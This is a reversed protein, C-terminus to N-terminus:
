EGVGREKTTNDFLEVDPPPTFMFADREFTPNIEIDEFAVTNENGYFDLLTIKRFLTEKPEVWVFAQVLGPEPVKPVLDLKVLEPTEPDDIETVFFDEELSAKGSIFRLMTQSELLEEVHYKYVIEEDPYYDWVFDEGVLLLEPEPELTEWRILQPKKFAIVGTRQQADGSSKNVLVQSFEAQFGKLTEYRKQLKQMLEPDPDGITTTQAHALSVGLTVCMICLFFAFLKKM